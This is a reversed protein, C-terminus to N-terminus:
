KGDNADYDGDDKAVQLHDNWEDLAFDSEGLMERKYFARFSRRGCLLPSASLFPSFSKEDGTQRDANQDDKKHEDPKQYKLCFRNLPHGDSHDIECIASAFLAEIIEAFGNGVEENGIQFRGLMEADHGPFAHM